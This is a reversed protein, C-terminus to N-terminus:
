VQQLSKEIRNIRKESLPLEASELISTLMLLNENSVLNETSATITLRDGPIAAKLLELLHQKVAAPGMAYVSSPYGIWIVKDKWLDLAEEIPLDGMPPPHMAEIVDHPCRSIHSKINNLRGDMHSAMIKKKEHLIKACKQYDPMFYQEFILPNVLVGDINDGFNVMDAPSSAAIEYLAEYSESIAEYLEEVKKRYRFHHIFFRGQESGIWDIMLMQMPSHPLVAIVIGEEGLWEKAQEIPFYYPEYQTDEVMFKVVDYDEPKEILRETNWPVIDRWSRM